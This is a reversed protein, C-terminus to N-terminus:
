TKGMQFVRRSATANGGRSIGSLLTKTGAFQGPLVGKAVWVDDNPSSGSNRM